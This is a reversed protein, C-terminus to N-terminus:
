IVGISGIEEGIKIGGERNLKIKMYIAHIKAERTGGHYKACYVGGL